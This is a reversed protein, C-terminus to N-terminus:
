KTSSILVLPLRGKSTLTTMYRSQLPIFVTVTVLKRSVSINYTFKHINHSKSIPGIKLRTKSM